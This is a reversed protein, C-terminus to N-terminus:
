GALSAAYAIVARAGRVALSTSFLTPNCATATPITGNGGVFLNDFGWVRLWPDTVSTGDDAAGARVTGQYHLSSGNPLLKPEGGPVFEGLAAAARHQFGSARRVEEDERGTLEYDITVAPMGFADSEEASFTLGDEVRPFKRLSWGVMVYGHESDGLPHGEPLPVPCTELHMLQASFPHAAESFPVYNVTSIPDGAATVIREGAPIGDPAAARVVEPSLAVIGFVTPHETLYRGLAEPRIGSAWLLQPTRIADAAVVVVDARETRSEGTTRDLVEVGTARSGEHFV